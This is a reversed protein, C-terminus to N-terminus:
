WKTTKLNKLNRFFAPLHIAFIGTVRMINITVSNTYLKRQTEEDYEEIIPGIDMERFNSWHLDNLINFILVILCYAVYIPTTIAFMLVDTIIRYTWGWFTLKTQM